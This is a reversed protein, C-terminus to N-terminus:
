GLSERRDTLIVSRAARNNGKKRRTAESALRIEFREGRRRFSILRGAEFRFDAGRALLRVIQERERGTLPPKGPAAFPAACDFVARRRLEATARELLKADAIVVNRGIVIAPRITEEFNRELRERRRALREVCDAIAKRDEEGLTALVERRLRNRDLRLDGNSADRRFSLGRAALFERIEVRSVGLMPRVVGDARRERPGALSALGGKRDRALLYSEIRDERQHATAIRSAGVERAMELLADYRVRRAGAEPSLRLRRSEARADRRRSLFPLKLRRAHVAVFRLDRDADRGRWGHHVHAVALRWGTTPALEEAGYLLALSDAGGSVALLVSANCPLLGKDAALLLAETLPEM